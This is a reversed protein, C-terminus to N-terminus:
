DLGHALPTGGGAPLMTLCRKARTLSRTPPVVLEAGRDRYAILAVQDRRAYADGLMLEVAGKAEAIRNLAASGSADVVFMLLTETRPKFRRLRIDDPHIILRRATTSANASVEPPAGRLTQEMLAQRWRQWPAAATLTAVVDIRAADRLPGPRSRMARGRAGEGRRFRTSGAGRPASARDARRSSLMDLVGGPLSALAAAVVLDCLVEPDPPETRDLDDSPEEHPSDDRDAPTDSESAATSPESPEARQPEEPADAGSPAATARPALVLRAAIAADAENTKVRGDLAAAVQMVRLAFRAPRIGSVGLAAAARVMAEIESVDLASPSLRHRARAITSATYLVPERAHWAVDRLDVILGARETLAAPPIADDAEGEDLLIMGRGDDVAEALAAAADGELREAMPVVFVASPSGDLVGRLFIPRGAALSAALDIGGRLHGLQPTAPLRIVRPINEEEERADGVLLAGVLALWADRVPGAASRVWVAGCAKPAAAFVAAATM